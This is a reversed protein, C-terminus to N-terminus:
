KKRVLRKEDEVLPLFIDKQKFYSRVLNKAGNQYIDKRRRVKILSEVESYSYDDFCISAFNDVLSINDIMFYNKFEKLKVFMDPDIEQMIMIKEMLLKKRDINKAYLINDSTTKKNKGYQISTTVDIEGCEKTKEETNAVLTMKLNPLGKKVNTISNEVKHLIYGNPWKDSTVDIVEFSNNDRKM